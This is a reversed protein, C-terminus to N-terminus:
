NKLISYIGAEFKVEEELILHHLINTLIEKSINLESKIENFNSPLMKKTMEILDRFNHKTQEATICSDCKGCKLAETEKGNFYDIILKSRCNNSTIFHIMSNLKEEEIAKRNLYASPSIALMSDPLREGTLIIKPLNTQFNIDAVGYEELFLLQKTLEKRSVKLRKAFETENINIFRDFIGPYSRTLLTVLNM